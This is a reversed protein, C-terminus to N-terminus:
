HDHSLQYKKKESSYSYKEVTQVEATGRSGQNNFQAAFLRCRVVYSIGDTGVSASDLPVHFGPVLPDIPGDTFLEIEM